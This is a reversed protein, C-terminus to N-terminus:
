VRRIEVKDLMEDFGERTCMLTGDLILSAAAAAVASKFLTDLPVESDKALEVALGAVMSDGAGQVGRVPIDMAPAFFAEDKGIMLAGDEGLSLCIARLGHSREILIRGFSLQSAQTPLSVGFTREMESLNPKIIYPGAAMAKSLVLGDTDLIVPVNTEKIIECYIGKDVGQPLSGSLILVDTEANVVKDFLAAVSEEPVSTGEQNIETMRKATEEFIKINTRIAGNAAVLDYPVNIRDLSDKLLKGNEIFDFGLLRCPEGLNGLAHVTNVAKGSIDQRTRRVRHSGGQKLSDIILTLDISPNMSLATIM